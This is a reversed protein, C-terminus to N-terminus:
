EANIRELEAKVGQLLGKVEEMGGGQSEERARRQEAEFLRGVPILRKGDAGREQMRKNADLGPFTFTESLRQGSQLQAQYGDLGSMRWREMAREYVESNLGVIKRRGDSLRRGTEDYRSNSEQGAGAGQQRKAIQEELALRERAQELAAKFSINQEEAIQRARQRLEMERQLEQAQKEDGSARARLIELQKDAEARNVAWSKDAQAQSKAAVAQRAAEANFAEDAARAQREMAAATEDAITKKSQLIALETQALATGAEIQAVEDGRADKVAKQLRDREQLLRNLKEEDTMGFEEVARQAENFGARAERRDRAQESQKLIAFRDKELQIMKETTPGYFGKARIADIAQELKYREEMEAATKEDGRARLDMIQAVMSLEKERAQLLQAEGQRQVANASAVMAGIQDSREEWGDVLGTMRGIERWLIETGASIPDGPGKNLSEIQARAEGLQGLLAEIAAANTGASKMALSLSNVSDRAAAFQENVRMVTTVVAGLVAGVGGVVAGAPGFVSLMQSGQQTMIQLMSTGMQAQVAVDQIQMALQGMGGKQMGGAPVGFKSMVRDTRVKLNQAIMLAENAGAKAASNDWGLKVTADSM